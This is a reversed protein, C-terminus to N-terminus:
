LEARTRISVVVPYESHLAQFKLVRLSARDLPRDDYVIAELSRKFQPLEHRASVTAFLEELSYDQVNDLFRCAHLDKDIGKPPNWVLWITGGNENTHKTPVFPYGDRPHPNRAILWLRESRRASVLRQSSWLYVQWIRKDMEKDSWIGRMPYLVGQPLVLNVHRVLALFGAVHENPTWSSKDVELPPFKYWQRKNQFILRRILPLKANKPRCGNDEMYSRLCGYFLDSWWVTYLIGDALWKQLGDVSDLGLYKALLEESQHANAGVVTLGTAENALHKKLCPEHDGPYPALQIERHFPSISVRKKLVRTSDDPHMDLLRKMERTNEDRLGARALETAIRGSKSLREISNAHHTFNSTSSSSSSDTASPRGLYPNTHTPSSM